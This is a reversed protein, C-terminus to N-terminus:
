YAILALEASEASPPEDSGHGSEIPPLAEQTLSFDIAGAVEEAVRNLGVCGFVEASPLCCLITPSAETFANM